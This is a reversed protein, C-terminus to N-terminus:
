SGQWFSDRALKFIVPDFNIGEPVDALVILCKPHMLSIQRLTMICWRQKVSFRLRRPDRNKFLQGISSCYLIKRISIRSTIPSM